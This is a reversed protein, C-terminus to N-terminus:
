RSSPSSVAAPRPRFPRALAAIATVIIALFLLAGSLVLPNYHSGGNPFLSYTTNITAHFLLASFVSRGGSTYIWVMIVRMIITALSQGAVWSLAHGQGLWWPVVHWAAWVTGILLGAVLVGYRQQLPETAYGTWGVEEPIAGIFYAAFIIPTMVLPLNADAPLPLGGFRMVGFTLVMAIPMCFVSVLLWRWSKIRRMDAVRRWLQAAGSRGQEQWALVSATIAPCAIMLASVPLGFPLGRIPWVIGLLWFPVSSLIVWLFYTLPRARRFPVDMILRLM